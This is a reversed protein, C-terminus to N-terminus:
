GEVFKGEVLDYNFLELYLERVGENSQYGKQYSDIWENIWHFIETRQAKNLRYHEQLVKDTWYGIICYGAQLYAKLNINRCAVKGNIRSIYLLQSFPVKQCAEYIYNRKGKCEDFIESTDKEDNVWKAKEEQIFDFCHCLKTYNEELQFGHTALVGMVIFAMDHGMSEIYEDPNNYKNNM